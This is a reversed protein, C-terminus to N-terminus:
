ISALLIALVLDDTGPPSVECNPAAAEPPGELDRSDETLGDELAVSDGEADAVELDKKEASREVPNLTTRIDRM